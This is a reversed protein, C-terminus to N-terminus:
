WARIYAHNQRPKSSAHRPRVTTRTSDKLNMKDSRCIFDNRFHLWNWIQRTANCNALYAISKAKFEASLAIMGVAAKCFTGSFTHSLSPALSINPKKREFCNRRGSTGGPNGHHRHSSWALFSTLLIYACVSILISAFSMKRKMSWGSRLSKRCVPCPIIMENGAKPCACGSMGSASYWGM